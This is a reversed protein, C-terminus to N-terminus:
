HNLYFEYHMEVENSKNSITGQAHLNNGELNLNANLSSGSYDNSHSGWFNKIVGIPNMYDIIAIANKFGSCTTTNTQPNISCDEGSTHSQYIGMISRDTHHSAINLTKQHQKIYNSFELENITQDMESIYFCNIPFTTQQDIVPNGEKTLYNVILTDQKWQKLIESNSM